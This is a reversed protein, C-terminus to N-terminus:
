KTQITTLKIDPDYSLCCKGFTGGRKEGIVKSNGESQRILMARKLSADYFTNLKM